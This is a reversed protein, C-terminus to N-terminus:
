DAGITLVVKGFTRDSAVLAHAEDAREIPLVTDIVPQIAGAGILPWVRQALADMVRSKAAISRARLTSGIIRLRKVMMLGIELDAKVGGMLGIIVLRGEVSLSRLNDALYGAGVPDLIADFGHGNTWEAVRERFSQV